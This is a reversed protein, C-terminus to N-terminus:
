KGKQKKEYEKTLAIIEQELQQAQLLMQNMRATIKERFEAIEAHHKDMLAITEPITKEVNAGAGVNVRLTRSEAVKAKVFIGSAIPALMETGPKVEAFESLQQKIAEIEQEQQGVEQLRQELKKIEQDYFQMEYYKQEMDSEITM